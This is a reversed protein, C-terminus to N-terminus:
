LLLGLPEEILGKVASLFASGSAGDVVRHDCSLSLKMRKGPVIEGDRVVPVDRIAGIALICVNPPNIIATFEEIGFMGLNSTTFTAGTFEEPQLQKARARDALAKTEEAIQALGKRDAHRIVPTILGEDMAVAVSVHIDDHLRIEGEALM